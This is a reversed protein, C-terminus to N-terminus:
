ALPSPGACLTRRAIPLILTHLRNAYASFNSDARTDSGHHQAVARGVRRLGRLPVSGDIGGSGFGGGSSDLASALAKALGDPPREDMRAPNEPQLNRSQEERDEPQEKNLSNVPQARVPVGARVVFLQHDVRNHSE